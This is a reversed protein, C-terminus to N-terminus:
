HPERRHDFKRTQVSFLILLPSAGEMFFQSRELVHTSDSSFIPISTCKARSWAGSEFKPSIDTGGQIVNLFVSASELIM